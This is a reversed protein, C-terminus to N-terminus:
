RLYDILSNLNSFQSNLNASRQDAIEQSEGIGLRQDRIEETVDMPAITASNLSAGSRQTGPDFARISDAINGFLEIRVPSSHAPSWVDIIGGRRSFTGVREVVQENEYGIRVWHGIMNELSLTDDRKIIRTYLKFRKAPMTPQMLARPGTVIPAPQQSLGALAALVMSRQTIVERVPAVTDYFATNPETFRMPPQDRLGLQLLADAMMRSSEVSSTVYVIPRELQELGAVTIARAARPLGLARPAQGARM